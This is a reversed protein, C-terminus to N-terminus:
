KYDEKFKNLIGKLNDETVEPGKYGRASLGV